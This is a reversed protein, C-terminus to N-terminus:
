IVEAVSQRTYKERYLDLLQAGIKDWSFVAQVKRLDVEPLKGRVLAAAASYFARLWDAKSKGAKLVWPFDASLRGCEGVDSCLVPRGAAIHEAYKIPFRSQNFPTDALPLLGLDIAAAFDRTQSPTLQGLFDIRERVASDLGDLCGAPPGCMALRLSPWHQKKAQIAEFIWSLEDCTRGMFGVYHADEALGLTRRSAIKGVPLSPWLGNFILSTHRAGRALALDGLFHGCTTVHDAIEPLKAELNKTLMRESWSRFSTPKDSMLGGVWLDDWDYFKTMAASGRWAWCAAPFPQFLHAVDCPSWGAQRRMRVMNAPHVLPSIISLGRASPVIHYVIGNRVESRSHSKTDHDLGYIEVHQGLKALALALNHFRFYTGQLHVFSVFFRIYLPRM